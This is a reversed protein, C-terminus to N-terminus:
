SQQQIEVRGLHLTRVLSVCPRDALRLHRRKSSPRDSQVLDILDHGFSLSLYLAEFFQAASLRVRDDVRADTFLVVPVHSLRHQQGTSNLAFCSGSSCEFVTAEVTGQWSSSRIIPTKTKQKKYGLWTGGRRTVSPANKYYFRELKTCLYSTRIHM